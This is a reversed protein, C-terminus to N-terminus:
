RAELAARRATPAHKPAAAAAKAAKRAAAAAEAETRARKAEATRAAASAKAAAKEAAAAKRAAQKEAKAAKAAEVAAKKCALAALMESGSWMGQPYNVRRSKKKAPAAESDDEAEDGDTLCDDHEGDAAETIDSVRRRKLGVVAVTKDALVAVDGGAVAAEAAPASTRKALNALCADMSVPYIGLKAAASTIRAAGGNEKFSRMTECWVRIRGQLDLARGSSVVRAHAIRQTYDRKISGFVQDMVQLVATMGGPFIIVDFGIEAAKAQCDPHLRSAHGDVVLLFRYTPTV